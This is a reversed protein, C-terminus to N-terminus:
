RIKDIKYTFYCDYFLYDGEHKDIGMKELVKKLAESEMKKLKGRAFFRDSYDSSQDHTCIDDCEEALKLKEGLSLADFKACILRKALECVEGTKVWRNYGKVIYIRLDINTIENTINRM